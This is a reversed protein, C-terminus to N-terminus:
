FAVFRKTVAGVTIKLTDNDILIKNMMSGTSGIKISDGIIGGCVELAVTATDTSRNISVKNKYVNLGVGSITDWIAFQSKYWQGMTIIAASEFGSKIQRLKIGYEYDKHTNVELAASGINVGKIGVPQQFYTSNGYMITNITQTTAGTKTTYFNIQAGNKGVGWNESAAAIIQSGIRYEVSDHGFFDFQGLVDNLNIKLPIAFTGRSKDMRVTNSVASNTNSWFHIGKGATENIFDGSVAYVGDTGVRLREKVAHTGNPTIYLQFNTGQTSDTWNETPCIAMESGLQYSKGNWGWARINYFDDQYRPPGVEVYRLAGPSSYSGTSRYFNFHNVDDTKPSNGYIDINVSSDSVTDERITLTTASLVRKRLSDSYVGSVKNYLTDLDNVVRDHEEILRNQLVKISEINKDASSIKGATKVGANVRIILIMIFILIFLIIIQRSM